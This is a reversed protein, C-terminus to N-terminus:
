SNFMDDLLSQIASANGQIFDSSSQDTFIPMAIARMTGISVPESVNLMINFLDLTFGPAVYKTAMDVYAQRDVYALSADQISLAGFDKTKEGILQLVKGILEKREATKPVTM